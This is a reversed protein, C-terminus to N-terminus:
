FSLYPGNKIMKYSKQLYKCKKQFGLGLDNGHNNHIQFNNKEM